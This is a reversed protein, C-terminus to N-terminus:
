SITRNLQQFDQSILKCNRIANWKLIVYNFHHHVHQLLYQSVLDIYGWWAIKVRMIKTM